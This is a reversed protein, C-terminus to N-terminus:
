INEQSNTRRICVAIHVADIYGVMHFSELTRENSIRLIFEDQISGNTFRM